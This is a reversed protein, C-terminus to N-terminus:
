AALTDVSHGPPVTARECVPRRRRGPPRSLPRNAAPGPLIKEVQLTPTHSTIPILQRSGPGPVETVERRCVGNWAPGADLEFSPLPEAEPVQGGVTAEPRVGVGRNVGGFPRDITGREIAGPGM